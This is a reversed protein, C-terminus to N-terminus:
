EQIEKGTEIIDFFDKDEERVHRTLYDGVVFNFIELIQVEGKEHGDLLEQLRKELRRHQIQHNDLGSYKMKGLFEEEDRFHETVLKWLVDLEEREAITGVKSFVMNILQNAVGVIQRHQRDIMENGSGWDHKWVLRLDSIKITELSEYIEVRNRGLEKARYLAADASKYVSEFTEQDGVQAVGFSATYRGAVPHERSEIASRIKEGIHRAEEGTAHPMILLFEEGGIRILSDSKRILSGAVEATQKLVSDGVPHGWKDNIQKFYDIDMILISMPYQYRKAREMEDDILKDMFHRNYLGTLEDRVALMRMMEEAQKQKSIDYMTIILIPISEYRSGAVFLHYIETKEDNVKRYVELDKIDQGREVIERVDSGDELKLQLIDFLKKQEEGEVVSEGCLEEAYQNMYIISLDKQDLLFFGGPVAKAMNMLNKGVELSSAYARTLYKAAPAFVFLFLFGAMMIFVWFLAEEMLSIRNIQIFNEELMRRIALEVGFQFDAENNQIVSIQKLLVTENYRNSDYMSLINEAAEVSKHYSSDAREFLDITKEKKEDYVSLFVGNKDLGDHSRKWEEVAQRLQALEKGRNRGNIQNQYIAYVDKSIMQSITKQDSLQEVYTTLEKEEEIMGHIIYQRFVLLSITIIIATYFRIKGKKLFQAYMHAREDM